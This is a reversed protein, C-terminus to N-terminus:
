SLPHKSVCFITRQTAEGREWRSGHLWAAREVCGDMQPSLRGSEGVGRHSCLCVAKRNSTNGFGPLVVTLALDVGISILHTASFQVAILHAVPRRAGCRFLFLCLRLIRLHPMFVVGHGERMAFRLVDHGRAQTTPICTTPFVHQTSAPQQQNNATSTDEADPEIQPCPRM